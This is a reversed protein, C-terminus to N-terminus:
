LLELVDALLFYGAKNPRLKGRDIWSNLTQRKLVRGTRIRIADRLEAKTMPATDLTELAGPPRGQDPPLDVVALARKYVDTIEDMAGLAYDLRAFDFSHRRLWNAAAAARMRGPHPHMALLCTEEIWAELTGVLDYSIDSADLHLPLPTDSSKGGDRYPGGRVTQKTIVDDLEAALWTSITTLIGELSIIQERTLLIPADPSSM